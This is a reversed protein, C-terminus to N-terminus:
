IGVKRTINERDMDQWQLFNCAILRGLDYCRAYDRSTKQSYNLCFEAKIYSNLLTSFHFSLTPLLISIWLSCTWLLWVMSQTSKFHLIAEMRMTTAKSKNHQSPSPTGFNSSLHSTWLLFGGNTMEASVRLLSLAIMERANWVLMEQLTVPLRVMFLEELM